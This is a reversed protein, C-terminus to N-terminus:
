CWTHHHPHPTTHRPTYDIDNITNVTNVTNVTYGVREVSSQRQLGNGVDVLDSLRADSRSPLRPSINVMSGFSDGHKSISRSSQSSSSRPKNASGPSPTGPIIAQPPPPPPAAEADISMLAWGSEKRAALLVGQMDEDTEESM